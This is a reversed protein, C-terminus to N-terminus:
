RLSPRSDALRSTASATILSGPSCCEEGSGASVYMDIQHGAAVGDGYSGCDVSQRDPMLLEAFRLKVVNGRPERVKVQLWGTLNQGMDVIWDGNEAPLIAIPRISRIKRIPELEEKLLTDTPTQMPTAPLWDADDFGPVSWGPAELRADYTEGSYINDFV